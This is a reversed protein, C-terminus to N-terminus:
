STFLMHYKYNNILCSYMSIYEQLLLAYLHHIEDYKMMTITNFCTNVRISHMSIVLYELLVAVKPTWIIPANPYGLTPCALICQIQEVIYHAIFLM